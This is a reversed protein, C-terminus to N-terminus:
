GFTAVSGTVVARSFDWTGYARVTDWNSDITMFDFGDPGQLTAYGRDGRYISFVTDGGWDNSFIAMAYNDDRIQDIGKGVEIWTTQPLNYFKGGAINPSSVLTSTILTTAQAASIGTASVQTQLAPTLDDFTIAGTLVLQSAQLTGTVNAAAVKLNTADIQSATLTGTVNAAAVQLNTADIQNATLQGTIKAASVKIGLAEVFETTVVGGVISTVGSGDKYDMDNAFASLKSPIDSTQAVSSPLQGILLTGTINAANVQLNTADIQSAVLKGTIKAAQVKIGLAEVYDTTIMGGVITTVGSPTQFNVDNALASLKTPIDSTQAVTTPLQGITLRDEIQAAKVKIGLAQVYDTTILGGVITTVGSENQFGMDNRFASLVDPIDDKSALDGPLQGVTLTGTINAAAVKLNDADIYEAALKGSKIYTANVYIDGNDGRYIGQVKGYNTLRNFIEEPDLKQDLQNVADDTGKQVDAILNYVEAFSKGFNYKRELDAATRAGQRDQKSSM